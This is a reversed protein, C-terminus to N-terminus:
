CRPFVEPLAPEITIADEGFRISRGVSREGACIKLSSLPFARQALIGLIEGGVAGTAGILVVKSM